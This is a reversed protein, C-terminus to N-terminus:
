PSAVMCGSILTTEVNENRQDFHKANKMAMKDRDKRGDIRKFILQLM